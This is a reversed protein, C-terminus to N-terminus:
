AGFYPREKLYSDLNDYGLVVDGMKGHKDPAKFSQVIGGYTMIKVEAGHSNRLTFLLVPTGDPTRGFSESSIQSTPRTGGAGSPAACGMLFTACFSAAHVSLLVYCNHM